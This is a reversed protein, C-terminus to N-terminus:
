KLLTIEAERKINDIKVSLNKMARTGFLNGSRGVTQDFVLVETSGLPLNYLFAAGVQYFTTPRQTGDATHGVGKGFQVVSTEKRIKDLVVNDVLCGTAGTDLLFRYPRGHESFRIQVHIAGNHDMPVKVTRPGTPGASLENLVDRAEQGSRGSLGKAVAQECDSRAKGMEGQEMHADCRSWYAYASDPDWKLANDLDLVAQDHQSFALFMRGRETFSRSRLKKDQHPTQTAQTYEQLALDFSRKRTAISGRIFHANVVSQYDGQGSQIVSSADDWANQRDGKGVYALARFLKVRPVFRDAPNLLGLAATYHEIAQAYDGQSYFKLGNNTLENANRGVPSSHATSPPEPRSAHRPASGTGGGRNGTLADRSDQRAHGVEEKLLFAQKRLQKAQNLDPELELSKSLDSIAEEARAL